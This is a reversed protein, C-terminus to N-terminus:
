KSTRGHRRRRPRPAIAHTFRQLYDDPDHHSEVTHLAAQGFRRIEDPSSVLRRLCDTFAARDEADFILADHDHTLYSCAGNSDSVIVAAGAAMAEMPSIAIPEDRSPLAFVDARRYLTAMQAHDVDVHLEIRDALPGTTAREMLREYYQRYGTAKGQPFQPTPRNNRLQRPGGGVLVIRFAVDLQEAADLLWDHRKRPHDFKGVCLVTPVGDAVWQRDRAGDTVPMPFPLHRAALTRTGEPPGIVPTVRRVPLRLVVRGAFRVLDHVVAGLRRGRNLPAQNYFVTRAGRRAARRALLRPGRRLDRLVVVDPSSTDLISDVRTRDLAAADVVEPTIGSAAYWRDPMECVVHVRLGADTLARVMPFMNTHFHRVVFLVSTFSPSDSM